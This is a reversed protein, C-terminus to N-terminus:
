LFASVQRLGYLRCFLPTLCLVLVAALAFVAAIVGLTLPLRRSIWNAYEPKSPHPSINKM